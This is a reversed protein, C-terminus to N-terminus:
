VERKIKSENTFIKVLGQVRLAEFTDEDVEFVDDKKVEFYGNNNYYNFDQLAKVKVM